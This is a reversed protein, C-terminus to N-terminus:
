RRYPDTIERLSGLIQRLQNMRRAGLHREWESEVEDVVGAAIPLAARGRDAIRVLRARADTPDPM